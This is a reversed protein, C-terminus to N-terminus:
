FFLYFDLPLLFFFFFSSVNFTPLGSFRLLYITVLPLVSGACVM